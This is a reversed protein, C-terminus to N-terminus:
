DAQNKAWSSCQQIDFDSTTEIDENPDEEIDDEEIDYQDKVEDSKISSVLETMGKYKEFINRKEEIMSRSQELLLKVDKQHIDVMENRFPFFLILLGRALDEDNTYNLYYRVVAMESRRRIFGKSNNLPIIATKYRRNPNSNSKYAVEYNSWFEALCMKDWYDDQMEENTYKIKDQDISKLPRAEYYQHPRM